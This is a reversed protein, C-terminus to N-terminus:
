RWRRASSTASPARPPRRRWRPTANPAIEWIRNDNTKIIGDAEAVSAELMEIKKLNLAVTEALAAHQEKIEDREGRAVM